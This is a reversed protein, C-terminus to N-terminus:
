IRWCHNQSSQERDVISQHSSLNDGRRLNVVILRRANWNWLSCFNGNAWAGLEEFLTEGKQLNKMISKPVSDEPVESLPTSNLPSKTLILDARVINSNHHVPLKKSQDWSYDTQSIQERDFMSSQSSPNNRGATVKHSKCKRTKLEM